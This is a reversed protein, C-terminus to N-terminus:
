ERSYINLFNNPMKGICEEELLRHWHHFSVYNQLWMWLLLMCDDVLNRFTNTSFRLFMIVNSKVYLDVLTRSFIKHASTPNLYLVIKQSFNSQLRKKLSQYFVCILKEDWFTLTSFFIKKIGISRNTCNNMCVNM